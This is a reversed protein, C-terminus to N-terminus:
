PNPATQIQLPGRRRHVSLYRLGTAGAAIRRRTGRPILITSGTALEHPEDDIIANGQGGLVVLLVDLEENRHEAVEHGPPWALLTANLDTSAMGWLPGIGERGLLDVVGEGALSEDRGVPRRYGTVGRHGGHPV